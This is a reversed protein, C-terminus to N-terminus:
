EFARAPLDKAPTFVVTFGESPDFAGGMMSMPDLSWVVTDGDIAAGVTPTVSSIEGPVTITYSMKLKSMEGMASMMLTQALAQQEETMESAAEEDDGEADGGADGTPDVATPSEKLLLSVTGDDNRTLRARRDESKEDGTIQAIYDLAALNKARAGIEVRPADADLDVVFTTVKLGEKKLAKKKAKDLTALNERAEAFADQSPDLEGLERMVKAFGESVVLKQLSTASGNANVVVVSEVEFCATSLLAVALLAVAHRALRRFM